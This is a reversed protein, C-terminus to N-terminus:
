SSVLPAAEIYVFDRSLVFELYHCAPLRPLRLQTAVGGVVSGAGLGPGVLSTCVLHDRVLGAGDLHRSRWCALSAGVLSAVALGTTTPCTAHFGGGATLYLTFCLLIWLSVM